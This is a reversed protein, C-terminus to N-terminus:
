FFIEVYKGLRHDYLYLGGAIKELDEDSLEGQANLKAFLEEAKDPAIETGNAKAMEVLEEVSKAAKFKELLKKININNNEM